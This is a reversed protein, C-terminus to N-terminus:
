LDGSIAEVLFSTMIDDAMRGTLNGDTGAKGCREQLAASLEESTYPSKSELYGMLGDMWGATAAIRAERSWTKYPEQLEFTGDDNMTWMGDAM